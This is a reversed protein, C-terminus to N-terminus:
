FNIILTLFYDSKYDKLKPVSIYKMTNTVSRLITNDIKDSGSSTLVQAGKITNDPAIELSIKVNNNFAVDSANALDNQLNMQINKGATQLYEKVSSEMALKDSVQWSIKTITIAAPKDSFSNAMSRNIDQSVAASQTDASEESIANNQTGLLQDSDADYPQSIGAVKQHNFIWFGAGAAALLVVLGAAAFIQKTKSLTSASVPEPALKFEQSSAGDSQGEENQNNEFLSHIADNQTEEVISNDQEQVTDDQSDVVDDNTNFSTEQSDTDSDSLLALLDDDLLGQIEDDQSVASIEGDTSDDSEVTDVEVDLGNQSVSELDDYRLEVPEQAHTSEEVFYDEAPSISKKIEESVEAQTENSLETPKDFEELSDLMELDGLDLSDNQPISDEEHLEITPIDEVILQEMSEPIEESINKDALVEDSEDFNSTVESVELKDAEDPEDTLILEDNADIEELQVDDEIHLEHLEDDQHETLVEEEALEESKISEDAEDAVESLLLEEEAVEELQMDDEVHLEQLEDDQHETLVEEEALEESKVSEDAENAVESLLLEEEAVEELQMDDEVHLEQLEDDQHEALVEEEAHEESKISEDAEDAVESLLPEEEAEDTIHEDLELISDTDDSSIDNEESVFTLMDKESAQELELNDSITEEVFSESEAKEELPAENSVDFIEFEQAVDKVVDGLSNETVLTVDEVPLINVPDVINESDSINEDVDTDEQVLFADSEANDSEKLELAEETEEKDDIGIELVNEEITDDKEESVDEEGSKNEEESTDTGTSFDLLNLSPIDSELIDDVSNAVVALGALAAQNFEQANGAFVSLTSDNLLEEYNKLQALINDFESMDCFTERCVPCSIVHKIFYSKESEALTNDIFSVCLEKIKDHEVASFPAIDVSQSAAFAGFEEVPLLMDTSFSCYEGNSESFNISSAPVFGIIKLQSLSKDLEVVVYARALGNFKAHIKPIYFNDGGFIVRVDYRVGNIYFDALDFNQAFSPVKYLSIKNDANIGNAQLYECVANAAINLAFSRKRTKIDDVKGSIIRAREIINKKLEITVTM